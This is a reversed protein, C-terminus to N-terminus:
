LGSWRFVVHWADGDLSAWRSIGRATAEIGLWGCDHRRVREVPQLSLGSSDGAADRRAQQPPSRYAAPRAAGAARRDRLVPASQRGRVQGDYVQTMESGM